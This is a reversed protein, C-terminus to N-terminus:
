RIAPAYFFFFLNGKTENKEDSMEKSLLNSDLGVVSM